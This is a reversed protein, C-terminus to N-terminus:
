WEPAAKPVMAGRRLGAAKQAKEAETMPPEPGNPMAAPASSGSVGHPVFVGRPGLGFTHGCAPCRWVNGTHPARFWTFGLFRVYRPESLKLLGIMPQDRGCSPCIM